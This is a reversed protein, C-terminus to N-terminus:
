RRFPNGNALLIQQKPMQRAMSGGIISVKIMELMGCTAILPVTEHVFWEFRSPAETQVYAIVLAPEPCLMDPQGVLSYFTSDRLKNQVRSIMEVLSFPPMKESNVIGWEFRESGNPAMGFKVVLRPTDQVIVDNFKSM